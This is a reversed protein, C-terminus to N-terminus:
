DRTVTLEKENLAGRVYPKDLYDMPPVRASRLAGRAAPPASPDLGCAAFRARALALRSASCERDVRRLRSRVKHGSPDSRLWAVLASRRAVVKYETPGDLGAVMICGHADAAFSRLLPVMRHFPSLWASGRHV